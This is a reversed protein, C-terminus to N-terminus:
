GASKKLLFAKIQNGLPQNTSEDGTQLVIEKWSGLLTNRLVHYMFVCSRAIRFIRRNAKESVIARHAKLRNKRQYAFLDDLVYIIFRYRSVMHGFIASRENAPMTELLACFAPPMDKKSLIAKQFFYEFRHPAAPIRLGDPTPRASALIESSDMLKRGMRMVAVMLRISFVSQDPFRLQIHQTKYSKKTRISRIKPFSTIVYLLAAYDEKDILLEATTGSPLTAIDEDAYNLYAYNLGSIEKFFFVAFQNKILTL